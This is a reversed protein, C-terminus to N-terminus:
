PQLVSIQSSSPCSGPPSLVGIEGLEMGPGNVGLYLLWFSNSCEGHGPSGLVLQTEPASPFQLPSSINQLLYLDSDPCPGLVLFSWDTAFAAMALIGRTEALVPGATVNQPCISLCHPEHSESATFISPATLSLPSPYSSHLRNNPPAIWPFFSVTIHVFFLVFDWFAQTVTLCM